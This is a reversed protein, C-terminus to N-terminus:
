VVSLREMVIVDESQNVTSPARDSRAPPGCFSTLFISSAAVVCFSGASWFAPKYSGVTDAIFGPPFSYNENVRAICRNPNVGTHPCALKTRPRRHMAVVENTPIPKHRRKLADCHSKRTRVSPILSLYQSHLNRSGPPNCTRHMYKNM